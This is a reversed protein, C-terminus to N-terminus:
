SYKSYLQGLQALAAASMDQQGWYPNYGWSPNPNPDNAHKIQQLTARDERSLGPLTNLGEIAVGPITPSVYCMPLIHYRAM